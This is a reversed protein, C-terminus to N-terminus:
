EVSLPQARGDGEEGAQEVGEPLNSPRMDNIPPQEERQFAHHLQGPRDATTHIFASGPTLAGDPIIVGRNEQDFPHAQSLPAVPRRAPQPAVAAQLAERPVNEKQAPGGHFSFPSPPPPFEIEFSKAIEPAWQTVVQAIAYQLVHRPTTDFYLIMADLAERYRKPVQAATLQVKPEQRPARVRATEHKPPKVGAFREAHTGVDPLSPLLSETKRRTRKQSLIREDDLPYKAHCLACEFQGKFPKVAKRNCEPCNKRDKGRIKNAGLPPKSNHSPRQLTPQM